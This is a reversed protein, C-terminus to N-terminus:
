KYKKSDTLSKMEKLQKDIEMELYAKTEDDNSSHLWEKLEKIKEIYSQLKQNYENNNM